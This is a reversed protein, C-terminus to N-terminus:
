QDGGNLQKKLFDVTGEISKVHHMFLPQLYALVMLGLGGFADSRAAFSHESEDECHSWIFAADCEGNDLKDAISRLHSSLDKRREQTDSM